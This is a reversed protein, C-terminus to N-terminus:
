LDRYMRLYAQASQTWSWDTTMGRVMLTQWASYEERHFTAARELATRLDTASAHEFCFGNGVEETSADFVTDRLGGVAHVIPVTGYRMAAMQGLGCPEFRSPM